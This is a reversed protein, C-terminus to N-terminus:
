RLRLSGVNGLSGVGLLQILYFLLFLVLIVYVVTAIPDGIGFAGMIARAAWFIACAVILLILLSILPM